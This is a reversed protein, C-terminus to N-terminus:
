LAPAAGPPRSLITSNRVTSAVAAALAGRWWSRAPMPAMPSCRPWMGGRAGVMSGTAAFIGSGTTYLEASSTAFREAILVKGNPLVTATHGWRATTMSGLVADSATEGGTVLVLGTPLLTATPQVRATGMSGTASFTGAVPDYFEASALASGASNAGGVILVKGTPLLVAAQELRATGLSGTNSFAFGEVTIAVNTTSGSSVTVAAQRGGYIQSGEANMGLVTITRNTGAAVSTLTLTVSQGSSLGSM